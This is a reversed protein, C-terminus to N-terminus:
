PDEDGSIGDVESFGDIAQGSDTFNMELFMWEITREVDEPITATGCDFHQDPRV